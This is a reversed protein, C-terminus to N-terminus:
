CQELLSDQLSHMILSSIMIVISISNWLLEVNMDTWSRNETTFNHILQLIHQINLLTM